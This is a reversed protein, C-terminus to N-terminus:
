RIHHMGHLKDQLIYYFWVHVWNAAHVCSFDVDKLFESYTIANKTKKKFQKNKNKNKTKEQLTPHQLPLSPPPKPWCLLTNNQNHLM